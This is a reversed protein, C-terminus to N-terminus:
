SIPACAPDGAHDGVPEPDSGPFVEVRNGGAAQAKCMALHAEGLVTAAQDRDGRVAGETTEAVPRGAEQGVVQGSGQGLGQGAGPRVEIAAVGVSATLAVQSGAVTFPEALTTAFKGALEILEQASAADGVLIAFEDGGWRAVTAAAPAMARIRRGVQALLLDGGSRGVRENVAAFRDVDVVIAGIVAPGAEPRAEAAGGPDGQLGSLRETIYARNPLGTLGDHYTLHEIQRRLEVRDSVDRASVLLRTPEGPRVHGSLSAEVHRWSGDSGRVRGAFTVVRARAPGHTGDPGAAHSRIAARLGAIATRIGIAQDEPHVLDILRTGLLDAPSYGYEAVAPSAYDITGALDCVIVADITRDALARFGGGSLQSNAALAARRALGALRSALLLVMIAAAVALAPSAVSGGGLAFGTVVIAAAGAAALAPMTAPSAWSPVLHLSGTQGARRAPRDPMARWSLPTVALLCLAVLVPLYWGLGPPTGGLRARVGLADGITLVAIAIWPVLARRPDRVVFRLTVGLAALDALPRILQLTLAAPGGDAAYDPGFVTVWCIVFLAAVFLCSDVAIGPLSRAAMWRAQAHTGGAAARGPAAPRVPSEATLAALAIVLAGMAALGILDAVRLPQVGGLLGGFAQQAASGAGLAVAAGALWRSGNQVSRLHQSAAGSQSPDHPQAPARWLLVGAVAAAALLAVSWALAAASM